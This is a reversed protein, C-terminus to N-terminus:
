SRGRQVLQWVRHALAREEPGIGARDLIAETTAGDGLANYTGLARYAGRNLPHFGSGDVPFLTGSPEQQYRRGNVVFQDGIRIARGQNIAAVDGAIAVGPEIVTNYEKARSRQTVQTATHRANPRTATRPPLHPNPEQELDALSREYGTWGWHAYQWLGLLDSAKQAPL